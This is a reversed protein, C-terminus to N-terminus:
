GRNSLSTGRNIVICSDKIWDNDLIRYWAVFKDCDKCYLDVDFYYNGKYGKRIEINKSKCEPCVM